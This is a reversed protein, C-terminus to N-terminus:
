SVKSEGRRRGPCELPGHGTQQFAEKALDERNDSCIKPSQTLRGYGQGVGYIYFCQSHHIHFYSGKRDLVYGDPHDDSWRMYAPDEDRFTIM